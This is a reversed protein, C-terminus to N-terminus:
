TVTVNRTAVHGEFESDWFSLCNVRIDNDLLVARDTFQYTRKRLAPKSELLSCPNKEKGCNRSPQTVRGEISHGDIRKVLFELPWFKLLIDSNLLERFRQEEVVAIMGPTDHLYVPLNAKINQRLFVSSDHEFNLFLISARCKKSRSAAVGM